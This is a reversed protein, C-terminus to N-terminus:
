VLGSKKKAAKKSAKPAPAEEAEAQIAEPEPAAEAAPAPAPEPRAGNSLQSFSKRKRIPTGGSSSLALVERYKGTILAKKVEKSANISNGAFGIHEWDDSKGTQNGVIVHM